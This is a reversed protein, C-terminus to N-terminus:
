KVPACNAPNDKKTGIKNEQGRMLRRINERHSIMVLSWILFTMITAPLNNLSFFDERTLYCRMVFVMASGCMSGISVYRFLVVLFLWLGLGILFPQPVLAALVGAGTAVGKGGKFRLWPSFNHGFVACIGGMARYFDMDDGGCLVEPLFFVPLFGKGMDLLLVPIGWAKGCVRLVNTFGINGSGEKRVDKGAMFGILLGFPVSGCLFCLGLFLYHM